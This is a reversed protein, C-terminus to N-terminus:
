AWLSTLALQLCERKALTGGFPRLRRPTSVETRNCLAMLEEKTLEDLCLALEEKDRFLSKVKEERKLREKKEQRRCKPGCLEAARERLQRQTRLWTIKQTRIRESSRYGLSPLSTNKLLQRTGCTLHNQHQRKQLSEGDGDSQGRRGAHGCGAEREM